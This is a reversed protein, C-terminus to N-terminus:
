RHIRSKLTQRSEWAACPVFGLRSRLEQRGAELGEGEKGEM